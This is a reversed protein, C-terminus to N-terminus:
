GAGAVDVDLAEGGGAALLEVSVEYRAAAALATDLDAGCCAADFGDAGAGMAAGGGCCCGSGCVM